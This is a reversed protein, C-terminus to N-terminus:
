VVRTYESEQGSSQLLATSLREQQKAVARVLGAAAACGIISYCLCVVHFGRFCVVGADCAMMGEASHSSYVAPQVGLSLSIFGVAGFCNLMGYIGGSNKLGFISNSVIPLTAWFFGDSAGVVIVAAFLCIKSDIQEGTATCLM